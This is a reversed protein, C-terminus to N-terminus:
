KLIMIVRTRKASRRRPPYPREYLPVDDYKGTRWILASFLFALAM